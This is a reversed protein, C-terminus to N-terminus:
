PTETRNSYNFHFLQENDVERCWQMVTLPGMTIAGVWTSPITFFPFACYPFPSIQKQMVAGWGWLVTCGKGGGHVELRAHVILFPSSCKYIILYMWVFSVPLFLM